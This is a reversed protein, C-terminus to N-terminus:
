GVYEIGIIVKEFGVSMVLVEAAAPLSKRPLFPVIVVVGFGIGFMELVYGCEGLLRGFCIMIAPADDVQQEPANHDAARTTSFPRPWEPHKSRPLLNLTRRQGPDVDHHLAPPLPQHSFVLERITTERRYPVLRQRQRLRTPRRM